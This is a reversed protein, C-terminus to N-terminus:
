EARKIDTLDRTSTLVGIVNGSDDIHGVMRSHFWRTQNGVRLSYEAEGPRGTALVRGLAAEWVVLFDEDNGLERNTRGILADNPVGTLTEVAPNAYRHRLEHDYWVIADPSSDLVTRLEAELQRLEEHSETLRESQRRVEREALVRRTIERSIGFTGIVRGEFDRLPMKTTSVFSDPRDPWTELEEIDILPEGTAIINQEDEYATRAHEDTFFDFDTMGTIQEETELGFLHITGASAHLFRSHLDKFYIQEVSAALLNHMCIRDLEDRSLQEAPVVPPLPTVEASAGPDPLAAEAYPTVETGGTDDRGQPQSM